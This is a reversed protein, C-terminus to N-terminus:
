DFFYFAFLAVWSYVIPYLATPGTYHNAFTLILTGAALATHLHWDSVRDAQTYLVVAIALAIVALAILHTDQVREAHPFALTTLGLAAGATFMYALSRARLRRDFLEAM